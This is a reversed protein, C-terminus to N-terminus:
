LNATLCNFVLTTLKALQQGQPMTPDDTQAAYVEVQVRRFLPNPTSYTTRICVLPLKPQSCNTKQVALEPWNKQLYIRNLADNASIMALYQHDITTQTTLTQTLAKMGSIMAIALIALGILVEFLSFGTQNVKDKNNQLKGSM